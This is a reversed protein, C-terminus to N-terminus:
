IANEKTLKDFILTSQITIFRTRSLKNQNIGVSPKLLDFQKNNVWRKVNVVVSRSSNWKEIALVQDKYIHSNALIIPKYKAQSLNSSCSMTIYIKIIVTIAELLLSWVCQFMKILKRFIEAKFYLCILIFVSCLLESYFCFLESPYFISSLLVVPYHM